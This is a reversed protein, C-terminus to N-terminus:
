IALSIPELFHLVLLVGRFFVITRQVLQVRVSVGTTDARVFGMKRAHRLVVIGEVALFDGHGGDDQDEGNGGHQADHDAEEVPDLIGSEIAVDNGPDSHEQNKNDDHDYEEIDAALGSPSHLLFKNCLIIPLLLFHDM